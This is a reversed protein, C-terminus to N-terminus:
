PVRDNQFVLPIGVASGTGGASRKRLRFPAMAKAGSITDKYTEVIEWAQRSAYNQIERLQLESNQEVTSVRVYVAARTSSALDKIVPPM